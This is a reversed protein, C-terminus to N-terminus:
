PKEINYGKMKHYLNQRLIGLDEAARTMNWDNNELAELILSKEYERVAMSLKVRKHNLRRSTTKQGKIIKDIFYQPIHDIHLTEDNQGVFNMGSEIIHELERVNGPWSYNMFVNELEESAKSIISNFKKNYKRFFHQCLLPIDDKRERLSPLKITVVALRFFLDPRLSEGDKQIFPDINTASIIRCDVPIEKKSGVRRVRKEQLVRLLKSQLPKAMSNIEDLFITGKDAQEFLGPMDTAGTFSGKVTGFLISEMLTDPIAACNIPIFPGHHNASAYHIGKTFLEKGTGTEGIILVPSDWVAVTKAQSIANKMQVSNGVIDELLFSEERSMIRNDYQELLSKQLRQASNLMETVIGMDWCISYVGSLENEYYFPFSDIITNIKRGNHFFSYFKNLLPKGTKKVTDTIVKHWDIDAYVECENRGLIDSRRLGDRKESALNHLIIVDKEDTAYIGEHISDLISRLFANEKKLKQSEELM